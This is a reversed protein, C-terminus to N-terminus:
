PVPVIAHTSSSAYLSRRPKISIGPLVLILNKKVMDYVQDYFNFDIINKSEDDDFVTSIDQNIIKNVKILVELM